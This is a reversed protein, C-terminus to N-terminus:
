PRPLRGSVRILERQVRAIDEGLKRLKAVSVPEDRNRLRDYVALFGPEDEDPPCDILWQGHVYYNRDEIVGDAESLVKKMEAALWAPELKDAAGQCLGIRRRVQMPLKDRPKGTLRVTLHTIRHELLGSDIVASGLLRCVEQMEDEDM